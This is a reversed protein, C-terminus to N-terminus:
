FGAAALGSVVWTEEVTVMLRGVFDLGFAVPPVGAAPLTPPAAGVPDEVPAPLGLAPVVVTVDVPVPAVVPVPGASGVCCGLLAVEVVSGPEEGTPEVVELGGAVSPEPPSLVLVPDGALGADVPPDDVGECHARAAPSLSPAPRAAVRGHSVGGATMQLREVVLVHEDM